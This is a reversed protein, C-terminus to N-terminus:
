ILIKLLYSYFIQFFVKEFTYDVFNRTLYQTSRGYFEVNKANKFFNWNANTIPWSFFYELFKGEHDCTAELLRCKGDTDAVYQGFAVSSIALFKFLKM